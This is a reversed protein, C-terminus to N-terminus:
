VGLKLFRQRPNFDGQLNIYSNTIRQTLVISGGQKLSGMYFQVMAGGASVTRTALWKDPEPVM